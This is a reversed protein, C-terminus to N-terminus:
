ETAPSTAAELEDLLGPLEIYARTMARQASHQRQRQLVARGLRTLQALSATVTAKVLGRIDDPMTRTRDELRVMAERAERMLGILEVADQSALDFEGDKDDM